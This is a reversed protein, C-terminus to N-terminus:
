YLSKLIENNISEGNKRYEEILSFINHKEGILMKINLKITNNVEVEPNFFISGIIGKEVDISFPYLKHDISFVSTYKYKPSYGYIWDSTAYKELTLKNIIENELKLTSSDSKFGSENALFKVLESLVIRSNLRNDIESLNMVESRKSNISKDTFRDPNGKLAGSLNTLNSDILLTAHALVRNKYIHMASGSVKKGNSIIDNRDSIEVDLGSNVLFRIIPKSITQFSINEGQPISSIFSFNLNGEDHYVAGGGSLRRAILIKNELIFQSNIEKLAIQHKGVVVCPQNIYLFLFDEKCFKLLYEEAALNYYPDSSSSILLKM